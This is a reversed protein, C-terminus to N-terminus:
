EPSPVLCPFYSDLSNGGQSPRANFQELDHKATHYSASLLEEARCRVMGIHAAIDEDQTFDGSGASGCKAKIAAVAQAQAAEIKGLMTKADPGSTISADGCKKKAAQLAPVPNLGAANRANYLTIADLCQSLLVLQKNLFKRAEKAVTKQCLVSAQDTAVPDLQLGALHGNTLTLTYMASDGYAPNPTTLKFTIRAEGFTGAPLALILQMQAHHHLGDPGGAGQEGITVSDGPNQLTANAPRFSNGNPFVIKAGGPPDVYVVEIAVQTGNSLVYLSEGPEDQDLADFGPKTSTYVAVSGVTAFYSTQVKQSFDFDLALNGGGSATSAILLDGAHAHQAALQDPTGCVVGALLAIALFLEKQLRKM